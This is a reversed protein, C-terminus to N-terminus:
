KELKRMATLVKAYCRYCNYDEEYQGLKKRMLKLDKFLYLEDNLRSLEKKLIQKLQEWKDTTPM